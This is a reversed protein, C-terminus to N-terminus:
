QCLLSLSVDDVICVNNMCGKCGKEENIRIDVGGKTDLAVQNRYNKGLGDEEKESTAIFPVYEM